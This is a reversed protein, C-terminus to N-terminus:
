GVAASGVAAFGAVNANTAADYKKFSLNGNNRPIFAFNGIQLSNLFQGDTVNLKNNSFYAVEAGGQLFSIRNNSIKLELENGVEGLLISGDIFRIYKRILEFEADTGNILDDLDAGFRNFQMTFGDATQELQSSVESVLADTEGKLYFRDSVAQSINQEAIAISAEINREVNYVANNANQATKEIQRYITGQEGSIRQLAASFGSFTGGLTLSNGAPDFLAISQKSILFLEDIGHPKSIVRVQSGIRFSGVNQGTKSLDAASLEISEVGTKIKALHERGATLLINADTIDNWIATTFIRGFEGEAAADIIYDLGGNVAAITLRNDTEQDNEDKLKAGLPILATAIGDSKRIKNLDILNDGFNVTQSSLKSIEQLYDIYIAGNQMRTQLYGGNDQLLNEIAIWTSVHDQRWTNAGTITVNGIRFRKAEEVQSNHASILERFYDAANGVYESPRQISDLLFALDGECAFKRENYFGVDEDFIRGRFLLEDDQYVDVITKLIAPKSFYVHDPYISFSFSGTKNLELDLRADTVQYDALRDDHLLWGDAYIRYAM